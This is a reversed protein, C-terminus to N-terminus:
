GGNPDCRVSGEKITAIAIARLALRKAEAEAAPDDRDFVLAECEGYCWAPKGDLIIQHLGGNDPAPPMTM